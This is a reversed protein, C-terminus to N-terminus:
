APRQCAWERSKRISVVYKGEADVVRIPPESSGNVYHLVYGRILDSRLHDIVATSTWEYGRTPRGFFANQIDRSTPIKRENLMKAVTGPSNGAVIKEAMWVTEKRYVPHPRLYWYNGDKYPEYGFSFSGGGWRAAKRIVAAAAGRRQSMEELEWEAFQVLDGAFRKGMRTTMDIDQAVCVIRKGHVICFEHYFLLFDM